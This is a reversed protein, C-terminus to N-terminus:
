QHKPRDCRARELADAAIQKADPFFDMKLMWELYDPNSLAIDDLLQGKYKGFNFVIAGEENRAFKGTTDIANPDRFRDELGAITNPFSEYHLVQADLIQLTALVDAEAGHAGDHNCGCYQKFAASLDRPEMEHYIVKTDIVRRGAMPLDVGCRAFESLLLRLDFGLINFGWLDCGELFEVVARAVKAFSPEHAVDHDTIGHVATAGGPIPIGPNCRRTRHDQTGDPRVRLISIEIIRDNATDIGTTELDIVALPRDLVINMFM